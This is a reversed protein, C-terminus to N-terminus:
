LSKPSLNLFLLAEFKENPNGFFVEKLKHIIHVWFANTSAGISILKRYITVFHEVVKEDGKKIGLGDEIYKREAPTIKPHKAPTDVAFFWLVGGIISSM